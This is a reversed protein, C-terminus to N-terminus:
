EAGWRRARPHWGSGGHAAGAAGRRNAVIEQGLATLHGAGQDRALRETRILGQFPLREFGKKM